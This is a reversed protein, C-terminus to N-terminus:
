KNEHKKRINKKERERVRPERPSHKLPFDPRWWCCFLYELRKLATLNAHARVGDDDYERRVNCYYLYTADIKKM